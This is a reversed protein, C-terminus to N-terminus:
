VETKSSAYEPDTSGLGTVDFVPMMFNIQCESEELERLPHPAVHFTAPKTLRHSVQRSITAYKKRAQQQEQIGKPHGTSV